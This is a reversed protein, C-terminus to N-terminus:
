KAIAFQDVVKGHAGIQKAALKGGEIEVQTFSHQDAIFKATFPQWSAPDGQQESNYLRAGGAGTVLYIVGRPRTKATGDYEKDLKWEAAVQNGNRGKVTVKMPFSRQYNHVHGAFVLDVGGKEFVPSLVRMWQDNFHARSSNFGPHHYAVFRWTADKAAALDKELWERLAPSEWNAYPNSDLVTWHANGYDFSFNAMRPYTGAASAQFAALQEPSGTLAPVNGDGATIPPGNLPQSWYFYYALIDPFASLSRRSLDHNGPAAIFLTSRLLPAGKGPAAEDANYIPFYKVRYESVRGGSYVIDGPIFVFDPDTKYTQYAVARQGPTDAACDGFVVFRQAQAASKRARGSANFVRKGARMVEYTFPGGPTLGSLDVSYVRHPAVGILAVRRIGPAAADRWAAEGERYRVSWRVDEDSTHWLVQVREAASSQPADGLQLYPKELFPSPTKPAALLLASALAVLLGTLNGYM